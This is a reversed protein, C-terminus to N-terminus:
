TGELPRLLGLNKDTNNKSIKPSLRKLAIHSTSNKTIATSRLLDVQM